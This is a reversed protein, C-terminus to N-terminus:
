FAVFLIFPFKIVFIVLLTLDKNANLQTAKAYSVLYSKHLYWYAILSLMITNVRLSQRRIFKIKNLNVLISNVAYDLGERFTLSCLSTPISDDSQGRYDLTFSTLLFSIELLSSNKSVPELGTLEVM